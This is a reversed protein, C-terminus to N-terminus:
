ELIMAIKLSPHRKMGCKTKDQGNSESHPINDMVANVVAYPFDPPVFGLAQCADRSFFNSVAEHSFYVIKTNCRNGRKFNISAKGLCSDAKGDYGQIHMNTYEIEVWDLKELSKAKLVTINAELEIPM